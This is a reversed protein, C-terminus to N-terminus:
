LGALAADLEAVGIGIGLDGAQDRLRELRARHKSGTQGRGHGVLAHGREVFFMAWPLSESETFAELSDSYRQAQDWDHADLSAQIAGRYFFLVSQAVTGDAIIAEGERLLAIREARDDVLAAALGLTFAGAFNRAAGRAIEVARRVVAITEEARGISHLHLAKFCFCLPAFRWAGLREVLALARDAHVASREFNGVEHEAFCLSIEGLLEARHHGVRRAMAVTASGAAMAGAFDCLFLRSFGIMNRNAVEVRGLGHAGALEVCREFYGIASRMRGRAYAADGLGGLALAELEISGLTKALKLVQGHARQCDEYRGLPFHLNGRLHHIRALEEFLAQREAEAEAEVLMDLAEDLREVVRLAGAIGLRARCRQADNAAMALAERFASLSADIEGLDHLVHGQLAILEYRDLDTTAIALGREVLERARQQRYLEHEARAARLYAAPAGPDAARELHEAYLAFDSEAYGAAARLHLTRRTKKLLAGYVSERILAHAFLYDDGEPRLLHHAVLTACDYDDAGLLRGLAAPAFRQGLVSAAQLADRDVPALRDMRALVLSQISDPIETDGSEVVSRVLQEIFLPNGAARELCEALADGEVAALDAVMRAADEDRLAGLEITLLSTDRRQERWLAESPDGEVRSTMVLLARHEAVTGALAALHALTLPDAWHIDEVVLLLPQGASVAAILTTLVERKGANRRADDMADYEARLATPQPLDLLDNLFVQQETGLWRQQLAREAAAVRVEKGEGLTVGLLSRVLSRMASRGKAVGFDLVLGKHCAFGLRRARSVFEEALRTKGIGAEGRLLVTGGHRDELCAQLLGDFQRREARRGVLPTRAEAVLETRSRLGILRCVEVPESLGKAAVPPHEAVELVAGGLARTAATILVSGPAVAQEMRAAIPVSPGSADYEIEDGEGVALVVVEGSHVGVRIAIGDGAGPELRETFEAVAAQMELAAQCAQLAHHESAVPAGFMAMVGDGQYRCLTGGSREVAQCMRRVAGYLLDHTDEPDMRETLATSGVVDAFLLTAPRRGGPVRAWRAGGAANPAHDRADRRAAPAEGLPEGCSDCFRGDPTVTAGCAPCSLDLPTGCGACFRAAARNDFHCAPCEM